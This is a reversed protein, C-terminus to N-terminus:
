LEASSTTIVKKKKEKKQEGPQLALGLVQVLGRDARSQLVAPVDVANPSYVGVQLENSGDVEVALLRDIIAWLHHVAGLVLLAFIHKLGVLEGLSQLAHPGPLATHPVYPSVPAVTFIQLSLRILM